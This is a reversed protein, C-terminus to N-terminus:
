KKLKQDVWCRAMYFGFFAGPAGFEGSYGKLYPQYLTFSPVPLTHIAWHQELTYKDAEMVIPGAKTSDTLTSYKAFLADYTPDNTKYYNRSNTSLFTQLLNAPAASLGTTNFYTMQDQKGAGVYAFWTPLDMNNIEMDVNIEKLYSKLVILLQTDLNVSAVANTKFGDPYGAAALLEKARTPNYSYEDKLSQTWQSYPYCFTGLQTSVMGMPTSDVTDGYYKAIGKLDIALQLAKRVNIDTFPAKDCRPMLGPGPSMATSKLLEPNTKLLSDAQQWSVSEILDIKGTRLAAEATSTDLIYLVKYQDAYPLKNKSHCEDYRWYDPNKVCTLSTSDIYENPIWPGTGVANKFAAMGGEAKVSEPAEIFSLDGMATSLILGPKKFKIQVTYKDVATVKDYANTTMAYSPPAPKTYGSGTGLVRDYHELVDYATFERGNVPAKNQWKVGQRLHVTITQPDSLEWSEALNGQMYEDPTYMIKFSYMDRDVAWNWAWLTELWVNYISGQATYNDFNNFVAYLRYTLTGGYQPEGFKDWWNAKTATSTTSISTTTAATATTAPTKTSISTSATQTTSPTTSGCSGSLVTLIVLCVLIGFLVKKGM